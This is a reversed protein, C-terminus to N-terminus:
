MCVSFNQENGNLLTHNCMTVVTLRSLIRGSVWVTTKLNM